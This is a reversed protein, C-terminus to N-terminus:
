FMISAQLAGAGCYTICNFWISFDGECKLVTLSAGCIGCFSATPGGYFCRAVYVMNHAIPCLHGLHCFRTPLSLPLSYFVPFFSFSWLITSYSPTIPFSNYARLGSWIFKIMMMFAGAAIGTTFVASIRGSTRDIHDLNQPWDGNPFWIVCELVPPRCADIRLNENQGPTRFKYPSRFKWLSLIQHFDPVILFDRPWSWWITRM